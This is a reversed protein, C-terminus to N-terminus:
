RKKVLLIFNDENKSKQLEILQLIMEPTEKIQPSKNQSDHYYFQFDGNSKVLKRISIWHRPDWQCVREIFNLQKTLSILFGFVQPDAILDEDIIQNKKIWEIELSEKQLVRELVNLDYNGIFYTYHSLNTEKQIEKGINEFDQYTYREVQLLNNVAHLGCRRFSQTQHKFDPQLM